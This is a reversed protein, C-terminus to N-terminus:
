KPATSGVSSQDRRNWERVQVSKRLKTEIPHEGWRWWRYTPSFAISPGFECLKHLILTIREPNTWSSYISAINSLPFRDEKGRNRVLIEEGQLYVKDVLDFVFAKLMVYGFLMMALPILLVLPSADGELVQGVAGVTVITLVGYWWVPIVRKYFFTLKSSLRQMASEGSPM